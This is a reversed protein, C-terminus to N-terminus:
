FWRERQKRERKRIRMRNSYEVMCNKLRPQGDYDIDRIIYAEADLPGFGAMKEVLKKRLRTPLKEVAEFFRVDDIIDDDDNARLIHLSIIHLVALASQPIFETERRELLSKTLVIGLIGYMEKRSKIAEEDSLEIGKQAISILRNVMEGPYLFNGNKKVIKGEELVSIIAPTPIDSSKLEWLKDINIKDVGNVVFELSIEGASNFFKSVRTNDRYIFSYECIAESLWEPPEPNSIYETIIEDIQFLTTNCKDCYEDFDKIKRGCLM